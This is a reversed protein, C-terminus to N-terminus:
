DLVPISMIYAEHGSAVCSALRSNDRSTVGSGMFLVNLVYDLPGDRDESACM